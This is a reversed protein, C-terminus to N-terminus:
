AVASELAVLRASEADLMVQTGLPLALNEVSTPALDHGAPLGLAVPYPAAAFCDRVVDVATVGDWPRCAAMTGFVVGAVRDLKGAQRLHTLMRDIRYPMEHVDELFLIADRTDLEWPTGLTTVLVSLCGGVLRGAARGPRIRTPVEAEWRYDPDFLLARAHDASRPSLGRAVDSAVMPGHFAVAGAAVAAALLATADSYGVLIKPDRALRLFDLDPVLRQSGYGGRACFVARVEPADLMRRLDAARAADTGALYNVRALAADGVVVRLGWGELVRVGSGLREEDVVGAPAVVGVVDGPRLRTPKGIPPSGLAVGAYRSGGLM